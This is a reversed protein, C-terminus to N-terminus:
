AYYGFDPLNDMNKIMYDMVTYSAGEQDQAKKCLKDMVVAIDEENKCSYRFKQMTKGKHMVDGMVDVFKGNPNKAMAFRLTSGDVQPIRAKSGFNTQTVQSVGIIQM